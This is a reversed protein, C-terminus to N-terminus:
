LVRPRLSKMTFVHYVDCSGCLPWMKEPSLDFALHYIRYNDGKIYIM